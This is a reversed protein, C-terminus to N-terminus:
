TLNEKVQNHDGHHHSAHEEQLPDHHTRMRRGAGPEGTHVTNEVKIPQPPFVVAGVCRVTQAPTSTGTKRQQPLHCVIIPLKPVGALLEDGDRADHTRDIALRL